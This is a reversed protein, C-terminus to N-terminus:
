IYAFIHPVLITVFTIWLPCHMERTKCFPLYAPSHKECCIQTPIKSSISKWLPWFLALYSLIKRLRLKKESKSQKENPWWTMLARCHQQFNVTLGYVSMRLTRITISLITDKIRKIISHNSFIVYTYLLWTYLYLVCFISLWRFSIKTGTLTFYLYRVAQM